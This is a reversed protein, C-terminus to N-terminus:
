TSWINTCSLSIKRGIYYVMFVQVLVTNCSTGHYLHFIKFAVQSKSKTEPVTGAEAGAQPFLIEAVARHIRIGPGGYYLVVFETPYFLM